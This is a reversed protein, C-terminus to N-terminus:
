REKEDGPQSPWDEDRQVYRNAWPLRLIFTQLPDLAVDLPQKRAHVNFQNTIASPPWVIPARFM